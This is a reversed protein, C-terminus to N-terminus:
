VHCMLNSCFMGTQKPIDAAPNLTKEENETVPKIESAFLESLETQLSSKSAESFTDTQSSESAGEQEIQLKGREVSLKQLQQLYSLYQQKKSLGTPLNSLNSQTKPNKEESGSPETDKISTLPAGDVSSSPPQAGAISEKPSTIGPFSLFVDENIDDATEQLPDEEPKANNFADMDLLSGQANYQTNSNRM